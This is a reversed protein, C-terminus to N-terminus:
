NRGTPAQSDGELVVPPQPDLTFPVGRPVGSAFTHLLLALNERDQPTGFPTQYFYVDSSAAIASPVGLTLRAVPKWDRPTIPFWVPNIMVLGVKHRRTVDDLWTPTKQVQHLAESSALGFLDLMYVSSPLEYSVWGIDNAAFNGGYQEVFRHMQFQQQYINQSARPTSVLTNVYPLDAFLLLLVVTWFPIRLQMATSVSLVIMIAFITTYVEYRHFWNYSGALMQLLVALTAGVLVLFHPKVRRARWVLILLIPLFITTPWRKWVLLYRLSNTRMTALLNAVVGKQSAFAAGKALVSNPLPPLGHRLLFVAFSAPILLSLILTLFALGSRRQAYLGVALAICLVFNEYRVAPGLIVLAVCWGPVPRLHYAEMLGYACSVAILGQLVHEMGTFTLGVLSAALVLLLSLLWCRLFRHSGPELWAFGRSMSGILWASLSGLLLNYFLPLFPHWASGVGPVLLYPWLISSSPTVTEGPNIGYVGHSLREALALHIYPDDLSYSFQGGNLHLIILLSTISLPSSYPWAHSRPIAGRM